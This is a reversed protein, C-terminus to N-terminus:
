NDSAETSRHAMQPPDNLNAKGKEVADSSVESIKTNARMIQDVRDQIRQYNEGLAEKRDQGNGFNGRIVERALGEIDEESLNFSEEQKEPDYDPHLVCPISQPFDM